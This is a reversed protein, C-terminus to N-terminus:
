NLGKIKNLKRETELLFSIIYMSLESQNHFLISFNLVKLFNIPMQSKIEAAATVWMKRYVILIM